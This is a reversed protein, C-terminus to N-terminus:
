DIKKFVLLNEESENSLYLRNNEVNYTASGQLATLFETEKDMSPCAMRTSAIQTFRLVDQEYFLSGTMRNCGSFGSFRNNNINVEMNPVDKGNFDEKSVSSGKMEELVWIDHLRYDTIYSGCGEYVTTEDGGTTKYSVTVTYPFVEGSMANTCEKHAIIIDLLTAETQIRYMSINSDQAKIPNTPPTQITDEMTQLVVRNDYIKLGWFPETGTAKFYSGDINMAIPEMERKKEETQITDSTIEESAEESAEEKKKEVCGFFLLIAFSLILSSKM